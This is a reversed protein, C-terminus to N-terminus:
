GWRTQHRDALWYGLLNFGLVALLISVGPWLAVWWGRLLLGRLLVQRGDAIMSGLEPIPLAPGVSYFGSGSATITTSLLIVFGLHLTALSMVPRVSSVSLGLTGPSSLVESKIRYFYVPWMVSGVLLFATSSHGFSILLALGLGLAPVASYGSVIGEITARMTGPCHAVVIALIAGVMIAVAVSCFAAVLATRYGHLVRSLIDRGLTDTGLIHDGSGGAFAPPQLRVALEGKVPDHPALTPGFIAPFVLVVLLLVAVARGLASHGPQEKDSWYGVSADNLAPSRCGKGCPSYLTESLYDRM